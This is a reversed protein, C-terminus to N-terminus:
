FICTWGFNPYNSKVIPERSIHIVGVMTNEPAYM